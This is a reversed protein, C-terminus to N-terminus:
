LNCEKMHRSIINSKSSKKPPESITVETNAKATKAGFNQSNRNTDSIVSAKVTKLKFSPWFFDPSLSWRSVKM